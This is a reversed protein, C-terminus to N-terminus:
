SFLKIFRIFRLNKSLDLKRLGRITLHLKFEKLGPKIADLKPDERTFNVFKGDKEYYSRRIEFLWKLIISSSGSRRNLNKM